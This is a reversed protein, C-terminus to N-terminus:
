REEDAEDLLAALAAAEQRLKRARWVLSGVFVMGVGFIIAYGLALLNLTDPTVRINVQATAAEGAASLASLEVTWLGTRERTFDGDITFACEESLVRNADEANFRPVPAVITWTCAALDGDQASVSLAIPEGAAVAVPPGASVRFGEGAAPADEGQDTTDASTGAARARM